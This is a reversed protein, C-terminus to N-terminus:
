GTAAGVAKGEGNGGASQESIVKERLVTVSDVAGFGFFHGSGDEVVRLNGNKQQVIAELEGLNKGLEEVKSVYFQRAAPPTQNRPNAYPPTPFPFSSFPALCVKEVYFGTGVDVLVTETSALTGPVYLSPTLPVLLAKGLHLPPTTLAPNPFIPLLELNIIVDTEKPYCAQIPPPLHQQWFGFVENRPGKTSTGDVGETGRLIGRRSLGRGGSGIGVDGVGEWFFVLFCFGGEGSREVGERVSSICDRFKTQAARLQQFSTTLHQLDQTLQNKLNTLQTLPLSSLDITQPQTTPKTAM